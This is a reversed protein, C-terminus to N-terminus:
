SADRDLGLDRLLRRSVGARNRDLRGALRQVEIEAMGPITGDAVYPRNFKM